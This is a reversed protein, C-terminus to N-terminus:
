VTRSFVPKSRRPTGTGTTPTSACRWTASSPAAAPRRRRSPTTESTSWAPLRTSARLRDLEPGLAVHFDVGHATEIAAMDVRANCMLAEIVDRRLWDDATRVVGRAVPLRGAQLAEAYTSLKKENQVYADRVDGIASIGLGLSDEAPIM